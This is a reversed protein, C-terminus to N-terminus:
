FRLRALTELTSPFAFIGTSAYASALQEGKLYETWTVPLDAVYLLLM